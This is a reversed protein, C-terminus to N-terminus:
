IAIGETQFAYIFRYKGMAYQMFHSINIGEGTIKRCLEESTYSRGHVHLERRLWQLLATFDGNSLQEELGGISEQAKGFFQAAYLSGLSYTPFYGFSGHSWHVDQLCGHRDDPVKVGLYKAYAENWWAPIDEAELGGGILAKELEYRIIVHFHYTLEDAETRILSPSVKNVAKYFEMASHNGLQKPFYQQM